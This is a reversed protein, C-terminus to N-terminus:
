RQRSQFSLRGDGDSRWTWNGSLVEADDIILPSPPIKKGQAVMSSESTARATEVAELLEEEVSRRARQARQKFFDYLSTPLHLTVAQAPMQLERTM